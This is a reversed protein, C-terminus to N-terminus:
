KEVIQMIRHSELASMDNLVSAVTSRMNHFQKISCEFTKIKGDSLELQMLLYPKFVRNMQSTSITVDVRWRVGVIQNYWSGVKLSQQILNDYKQAYVDRLLKTCDTDFKLGILQDRFKDADLKLRIGQRFIDYFTTFLFSFVGIKPIIQIQEMQPKKKLKPLNSEVEKELIDTLQTTLSEPKTGKSKEVLVPDYNTLNDGTLYVAVLAAVKQVSPQSIVQLLTLTRNIEDPIKPSGFYSLTEMKNQNTPDQV